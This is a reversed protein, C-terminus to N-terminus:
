VERMEGECMEPAERLGMEGDRGQSDARPRAMNIRHHLQGHTLSIRAVGSALKWAHFMGM